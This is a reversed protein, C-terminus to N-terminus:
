DPDTFVIVRIRAKADGLVLADSLPIQSVDVKNLATMREQTINKRDKISILQGSILHNKSFDIYALGKRGGSEFFVEWLAKSSSISTDLVKIDPALIKLLDRAEDKTLTHCKACDQGKTEFSFSYPAPLLCFLFFGFAVINKIMKAMRGGLMSENVGCGLNSPNHDRERVHIIAPSCSTM